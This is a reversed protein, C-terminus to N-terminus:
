RRPRRIRKPMRSERGLTVVGVLLFIFTYTVFARILQQDPKFLLLVSIALLLLLALLFSTRSPIRKIFAVVVYIGSLVLGIALTQALLGGFLAALLLLPLQLRNWIPHHRKQPVPRPRAFARHSEPRGAPRPQQYLAERRQVGDVSLPRKPLPQTSTVIDNM